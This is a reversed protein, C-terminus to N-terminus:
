YRLFNSIRCCNSETVRDMPMYALFDSQGTKGLFWCFGDHIQVVIHGFIQSPASYACFLPSLIDLFGQLLRKNSCISPNLTKKIKSNRNQTINGQKLLPCSRHERCEATTMIAGSGIRGTGANETKGNWSFVMLPVVRTTDENKM